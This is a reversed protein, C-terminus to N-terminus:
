LNEEVWADSYITDLYKNGDDHLIIVVDSGEAIDPWLREVAALVAGGSAGPLIAETRAMKRAAEVSTRDDIRLVQHPSLQKSLESVMGAGFGPLHRLGPHGDFLVSGEADVAIVNTALNHAAVYCLCGGITGTTSVAVLLYDPARGLQEVIETMTGQEHAQFAATNSYQDLCVAEPIQACLQAVRRRRAVLWDGTKLDPETIEHVIAGLAKMHTVTNRNVRPDVVCHFTWGGLVAERSLAIGLNGSSSEVVIDGPRLSSAAVMAHATRDKASGGPNYSEMKAWLNIKEDAAFRVLKVLPTNGVTDVSSHNSDSDM